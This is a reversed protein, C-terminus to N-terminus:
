GIVNSEKENVEGREETKWDRPLELVMLRHFIKENVEKYSVEGRVRERARESQGETWYCQLELGILWDFEKENVERTNVKERM